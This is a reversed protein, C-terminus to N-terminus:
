ATEDVVALVDDSKVLRYREGINRTLQTGRYASCLVKAGVGFPPLVAFGQKTKRWPGIALVVAKFPPKKEPSGDWCIEPLSIGGHTMTDPPLVEVLVQDTLPKVAM